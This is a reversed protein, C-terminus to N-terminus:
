ECQNNSRAQALLARMRNSTPGCFTGAVELTHIDSTAFLHEYGFTRTIHYRTKCGCLPLFLQTAFFPLIFWHESQSICKLIFGLNCVGFFRKYIDWDCNCSRSSTTGTSSFQETIACLSMYNRFCVNPLYRCYHCITNWHEIGDWISKM